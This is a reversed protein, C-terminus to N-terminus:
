GADRLSALREAEAMFRAGVGRPALAAHVVNERGLALSLEDRSFLAVIRRGPKALKSRGDASGDSATVLVSGPDQALAENVKEFGTVVLGARKALGLYNLCSRTLLEEVQSALAEPAVVRPTDGGAKGASAKGARAAAKAFLHKRVAEDIAQRSARVWYGRGPLRGAIDPTVTGDPAIVFRVLAAADESKGTVLCRRARMSEDDQRPM